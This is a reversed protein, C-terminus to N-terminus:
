DSLIACRVRKDSLNKALIICIINKSVIYINIKFKNLIALDM